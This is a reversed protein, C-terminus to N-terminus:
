STNLSCLRALLECGWYTMTRPALRLHRELEKLVIFADDDAKIVYDARKWRVNRAKGSVSPTEEQSSLPDGVVIPVTANEAAWTFYELTKGRNMNEEIDLIVIDNYMEQELLVSRLFKGRPKGLIFKLQVNAMSTGDKPSVPLTHAAYTHRIVSRREASSDRSFVGVFLDVPALSDALEHPFAPQKACDLRWPKPEKDPNLIYKITSTISAISGILVVFFLILSPVNLRAIWRLLRALHLPIYLLISRPVSRGSGIRKTPASYAQVAPGKSNAYYDAEHWTASDPTHARSELLENLEDQNLGRALAEAHQSASRERLLELAKDLGRQRGRMEGDQVLYETWEEEPRSGHGNVGGAFSSVSPPPPSSCSSANSNSAYSQVSTGSVSASANSIISGVGAGASAGVLGTFRVPGSM